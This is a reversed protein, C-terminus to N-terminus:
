GSISRIYEKVTYQAHRPKASVFPTAFLRLNHINSKTSSQKNHKSMAKSKDLQVADPGGHRPLRDKVSDAAGHHNSDGINLSKRTWKKDSEHKKFLISRVIIEKEATTIDNNGNKTAQIKSKTQSEVTEKTSQGEGHRSRKRDIRPTNQPTVNNPTRSRSPSGRADTSDNDNKANEREHSLLRLSRKHIKVGVPTKGKPWADAYYVVTKPDSSSASANRVVQYRESQNASKCQGRRAIRTAPEIKRTKVRYENKDKVVPSPSRVSRPTVTCANQSRVSDDLGLSHKSRRTIKPRRTLYVPTSARSKASDYLKMYGKFVKAFEKSSLVANNDKLPHDGNRNELPDFFNAVRVISYPLNRPNDCGPSVNKLTLMERSSSPTKRGKKSCDSQSVNRKFIIPSKRSSAHDNANTLDKLSKQKPVIKWKSVPPGQVSEAATKPRGDKSKLLSSESKVATPKVLSKNKKARNDSM